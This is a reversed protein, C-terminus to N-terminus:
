PALLVADYPAITSSRANFMAGTLDLSGGSQADGGNFTIQHHLPIRLWRSRVTIWRGTTNMIAACAGFPARRVYCSRFERRYVGPAVEVSRHGGKSCVRGTGALCGRGGPRRMSQLPHTPYIGEEPWVALHRSGVELNAWDVLHRPSYGLFMTAEQVRRSQAQYPAGAPARSMPAVFGSTRTSVYAIQDLLTSYDPDLAGDNEPEGEVTWADVGIRPNLMNLGQPLSPNTPLTNDAQIFRAGDRHTLAASMAQHAARLAANTRIESTRSCGCTSYYLEQSLSPSQWDMLLGDDANYHRRVYSQFFSRVAPRSQNILYAGGLGGTFIMRGQNPSPAHLWWNSSAASAVRDHDAAFYWDTDLYQMSYCYTRHRSHCNVRAKRSSGCNSEAYNLWQHVFGSSAGAGGNCGDDFAWTAIHSKVATGARAGPATAGAWLITSLAAILTVVRGAFSPGFERKARPVAVSPMSM